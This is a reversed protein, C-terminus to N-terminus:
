LANYFEMFLQRQREDNLTALVLGLDIQKLSLSRAKPDATVCALHMLREFQRRENRDVIAENVMRNRYAMDFCGKSEANVYRLVLAWAEGFHQPSISLVAKFVGTWLVRQQKLIETESVTKGPTMTVIYGKLRDEIVAIIPSTNSM